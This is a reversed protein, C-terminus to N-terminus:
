CYTVTGNISCYGSTGDVQVCTGSGTCTVKKGGGCDATCSAANYGGFVTKLQERQLLDKSDFLLKNLSMKRM